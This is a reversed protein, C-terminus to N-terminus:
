MEKTKRTGPGSRGAKVVVWEGVEVVAAREARDEEEVAEESVAWNRKLLRPMRMSWSLSAHSRHCPKCLKPLTEIRQVRLRVAHM